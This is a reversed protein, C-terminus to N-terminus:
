ALTTGIEGDVGQYIGTIEIFAAGARSLEEQALGNMALTQVGESAFAIAAHASVEDAGAPTLASVEATTATGTALGRAGNAVVQSGVGTAGENHSMPQM